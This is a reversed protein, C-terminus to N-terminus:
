REDRGNGVAELAGGRAVRYRKTVFRRQPGRRAATLHELTSQATASPRSERREVEAGRPLELTIRARVVVGPGRSLLEFRAGPANRARVWGDGVKVFWAREVNGRAAVTTEEVLEVLERRPAESM